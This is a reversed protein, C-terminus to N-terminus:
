EIVEFGAAELVARARMTAGATFAAEIIEPTLKVRTAVEIASQISGRDYYMTASDPDADYAAERARQRRDELESM